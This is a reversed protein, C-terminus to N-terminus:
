GAHAHRQAEEPGGPREFLQRATDITVSDPLANKAPVAVLGDCLVDDVFERERALAGAKLDRYANLYDKQYIFYEIDTPRCYNASVVLM